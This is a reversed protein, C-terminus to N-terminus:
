GDVKLRGGAQLVWLHTGWDPAVLRFISRYRSEKEQKSSRQAMAAAFDTASAYLELNDRECCLGLHMM